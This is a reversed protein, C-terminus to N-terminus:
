DALPRQRAHLQQGRRGAGRWRREGGRGGAALVRWPTLGEGAPRRAEGRREIARTVTCREGVGLAVELGQAETLGGARGASLPARRKAATLTRRAATRM